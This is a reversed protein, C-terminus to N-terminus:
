RGRPDDTKKYVPNDKFIFTTETDTIEDIKDDSLHNQTKAVIITM